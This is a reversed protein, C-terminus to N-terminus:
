SPLEMSCYCCFRGDASHGSRGCAACTRGPKRAPATGRVRVRDIMGATVIGTPVAIIGYGLIMIIASVMQGLPSLPTIDGFGVTTLTVIAWYILGRRRDDLAVHYAVGLRSGRRYTMRDQGLRRARGVYDALTSVIKHHTWLKESPSRKGPLRDCITRALRIHWGVQGHSHSVRRDIEVDDVIRDPESSIEAVLTEVYLFEEPDAGFEDVSPVTSEDSYCSSVHGGSARSAIGDDSDSWESAVDESSSEAGNAAWESYFCDCISPLEYGCNRVM